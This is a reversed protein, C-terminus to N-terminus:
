KDFLYFTAQKGLVDLKVPTVNYNTTNGADDVVADITSDGTQPPYVLKLIAGTDSANLTLTKVSGDKAKVLLEVQNSSPQQVDITCGKAIEISGSSTADVDIWAQAVGVIDVVDIRQVTKGLSKSRVDSAALVIPQHPTVIVRAQSVPTRDFLDLFFDFREKLIVLAAVALAGGGIAGILFSRQLSRVEKELGEVRLEPTPKQTHQDQPM